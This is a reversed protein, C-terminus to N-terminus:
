NLLYRIFKLEGGFMFSLFLFLIPAALQHTEEEFKEEAPKDDSHNGMLLRHVSNWQAASMNTINPMIAAPIIDFMELVSANISSGASDALSAIPVSASSILAGGDNSSGLTPAEGELSM